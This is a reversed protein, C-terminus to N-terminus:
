IRNKLNSKTDDNLVCRPKLTGYLPSEKDAEGLVIKYLRYKENGRRKM